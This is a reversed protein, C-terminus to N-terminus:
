SSAALQRVLQWYDRDIKYDSQKFYIGKSYWQHIPGATHVASGDDYRQVSEHKRNIHGNLYRFDVCICVFDASIYIRMARHTVLTAGLLEYRKVPRIV